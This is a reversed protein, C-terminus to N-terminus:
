RCMSGGVTEDCGSRIPPPQSYAQHILSRRQAVAGFNDQPIFIDSLKGIVEVAAYGVLKEAAANFTLIKFDLDRSIIADGSNDVIAALRAREGENRKRRTIDTLLGIWVISGDPQRPGPVSPGQVM